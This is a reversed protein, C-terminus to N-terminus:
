NLEVWGVGKEAIKKSFVLLSNYKANVNKKKFFKYFNQQDHQSVHSEFSMKLFYGWFFVSKKKPPPPIKKQIFDDIKSKPCSLFNLGSKPISCVKGAVFRGIIPWDRGSFWLQIKM